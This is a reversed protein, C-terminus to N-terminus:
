HYVRQWDSSQHDRFGYIMAVKPTIPNAEDRQRLMIIGNRKLNVNARGRDDIYQQNIRPAKVKKQIEKEHTFGNRDIFRLGFFKEEHTQEDYTDRLKKLADSVLNRHAL